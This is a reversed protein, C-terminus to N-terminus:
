CFVSRQSAKRNWLHEDILNQVMDATVPESFSIGDAFTLDDAELGAPCYLLSNILFALASAAAEIKDIKKKGRFMGQVKDRCLILFAQVTILDAGNKLVTDICANKESQTLVGVFKSSSQLRRVKMDLPISIEQTAVLSLLREVVEGRLRFQDRKATEGAINDSLCMAGLDAVPVGLFLIPLQICLQEDFHELALAPKKDHQKHRVLIRWKTAAIAAEDVQM